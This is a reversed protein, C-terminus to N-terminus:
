RYLHAVLEVHPSWRFQDIPQISSVAYGSHALIKSDRAFTVPNCSVYILTDVNCNAIHEVQAAAGARPPDIVIADYTSLENELLPNRYLDRIETSIPKLHTANQSANKLAKIAPVSSEVAHVSASRALPLTFTGCGAFLDLVHRAEGVISQVTDILTDEGDKTAQLFADPPPQISINRFHQTVATDQLVLEGNWVLRIIHAESCIDALTALADRHYEKANQISVDLGTECVTISISIVNSRSAAIQTLRELYPISALIEACLVTCNPIEVLNESARTNFGVMAGKKTRRGKLTARRRSNTPSTITERIDASLEHAKLAESIQQSKWQAVFADSAHQLACGGCSKFHSCPASVRDSSARVIRPTPMRNGEIEGEVIEGPLAFPVYIPGDAIGDGHISLKNIESTVINGPQNM